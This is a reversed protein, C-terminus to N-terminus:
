FYFASKWFPWKLRTLCSTFTAMENCFNTPVIEFEFAFPALANNRNGIGTDLRMCDVYKCASTLTRALIVEWTPISLRRDPLARPSRM